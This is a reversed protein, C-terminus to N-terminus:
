KGVPMLRSQALVGSQVIRYGTRATLVVWQALTALWPLYIPRANDRLQDEDDGRQASIGRTSFM